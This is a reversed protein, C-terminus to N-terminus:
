KAVFVVVQEYQVGEIRVKQRAAETLMFEFKEQGFKECYWMALNGIGKLTATAKLRTQINKQKAEPEPENAIVKAHAMGALQAATEAQEKILFDASPGDQLLGGIKHNEIRAELYALWTAVSKSAEEAFEGFFDPKVKFLSLTKQAEISSALDLNSCKLALQKNLEDLRLKLSAVRERELDAAIRAEREKRAKEQAIFKVSKDALARAADYSKTLDAGTEQQWDMWRKKEEDLISTVMKRTAELTGLHKKAEAIVKSFNAIQGEDLMGLDLFPVLQSEIFQQQEKWVALQSDLSNVVKLYNEM